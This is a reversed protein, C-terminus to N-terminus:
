NGNFKALTFISKAGTSFSGRPDKKSNFFPYLIPKLRATMYRVRLSFNNVFTLFLSSVPTYNSISALFFTFLLGPDGLSLPRLRM